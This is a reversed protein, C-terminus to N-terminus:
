LTIPKNLYFDLVKIRFVYEYKARILNAKAQDLNLKALNYDVANIAGANFRNEV